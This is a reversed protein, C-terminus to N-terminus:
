LRRKKAQYFDQNGRGTRAKGREKNAMQKGFRFSTFSIFCMFTRTGWWGDERVEM